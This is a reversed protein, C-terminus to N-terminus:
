RGSLTITNGISRLLQDAPSSGSGEGGYTSSFTDTYQLGQSTILVNVAPGVDRLRKAYSPLSARSKFRLESDIPTDALAQM